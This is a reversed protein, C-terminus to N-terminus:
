LWVMRSRLEGFSPFGAKLLPGFLLAEGHRFLVGVAMPLESATTILLVSLDKGCVVDRGDLRKRFAADHQRPIAQRIDERLDSMLCVSSGNHRGGGSGATTVHPPIRVTFDIMESATWAEVGHARRVDDRKGAFGFGLLRPITFCLITRSTRGPMFAPAEREATGEGM